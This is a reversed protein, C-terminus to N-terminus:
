SLTLCAKLDVDYEDPLVVVEAKIVVEEVVADEKKDKSKKSKKKDKPDEVVQVVEVVKEEVVTEEVEPKPRM